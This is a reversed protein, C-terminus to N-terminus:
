KKDYRLSNLAKKFNGDLIKNIKEILEEPKEQMGDQIWNQIIGVFSYQYFNAIFKKDEERVKIGYAEEDVVKKLLEYTNKYIFSDVYKRSISNYINKIFSENELVYYFISLFGEQWKEYTDNEKKIPTIVENTFIWEILDYVDVFHYYFTQRKIGSDETIDKITIKSLERKSVLKKFSVALAKKTIDSM